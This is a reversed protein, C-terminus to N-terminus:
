TPVKMLPFWDGVLLSDDFNDLPAIVLRKWVLNGCFYMFLVLERCNNM